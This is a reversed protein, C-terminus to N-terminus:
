YFYVAEYVDGGGAGTTLTIATGTYSFDPSGGLSSLRQGNKFLGILSVPSQAFSGSTGSFTIIEDEFTGAGSAPTVWTPAASAGNTQLVKGTTGAALRTPAGSAGGYIIDGETTMPNAFGAGPPVEWTGDAKLYKGAAADGSAPAPVNGAAGGSGTDGVLLPDIASVNVTPSGSDDAFVINQRTSAPGPTTANLNVTSALTM